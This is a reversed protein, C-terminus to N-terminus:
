RIEMSRILGNEIRYVDRVMQDSVLSWQRTWYDRVGSHGSVWGGEM